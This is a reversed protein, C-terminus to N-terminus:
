RVWTIGGLRDWTVDGDSSKRRVKPAHTGDDLSHSRGRLLFVWVAASNSM